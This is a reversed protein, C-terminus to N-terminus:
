LLLPSKVKKARIPLYVKPKLLALFFYNQFSMVNLCEIKISDDLRNRKKYIRKDKKNCANYIFQLIFFM